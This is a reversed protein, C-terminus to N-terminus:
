PVICDGVGLPDCGVSNCGADGDCSWTDMVEDCQACNFRCQADGECKCFSLSCTGGSIRRTPFPGVPLEATPPVTPPIVIPRGTPADMPSSTSPPSTPLPPMLQSPAPTPPVPTPPTPSKAICIGSECKQYAGDCCVNGCTITRNGYQRFFCAKLIEKVREFNFIPSKWSQESPSGQMVTIALDEATLIGDLSFEWFHCTNCDNLQIAVSGEPDLPEIPGTSGKLAGKFGVKFPVDFSLFPDAGALLTEEVYLYLSGELEWPAEYSEQFLSYDAMFTADENKEVRVGADFSFLRPPYLQPDFAGFIYSEIDKKGTATKAMVTPGFKKELKVEFEVGVLTQLLIGARVKPLKYGVLRAMKTFVDLTVGFLPINALSIQIPDTGEAPLKYEGQAFKLSAELKTSVDLVTKLIHEWGNGKRIRFGKISNRDTVSASIELTFKENLPFVLKGTDQLRRMLGIDEGSEVIEVEIDVTEFISLLTVVAGSLLGNQPTGVRSEIRLYGDQSNPFMAAMASVSTAPFLSCSGFDEASVVLIAGVPFLTEMPINVSQDMQISVTANEYCTLSRVLDKDAALSVVGSKALEVEASVEYIVGEVSTINTLGLSDKTGAAYSKWTPGGNKSSKGKKGSKTTTGAPKGAKTTKTTKGGDSRTKISAKSGGIGVYDEPNIWVDANFAEPEILERHRLQEKADCSALHCAFLAAFAARLNM